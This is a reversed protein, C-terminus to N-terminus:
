DNSDIWKSPSHTVIFNYIDIKGSSRSFLQIDNEGFLIGKAEEIMWRHYDSVHSINEIRSTKNQGDILKRLKENEERMESNIKIHSEMMVSLQNSLFRNAEMLKDYDEKSISM